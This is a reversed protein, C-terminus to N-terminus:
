IPEEEPISGSRTRWGGQDPSLVTQECPHLRLITALSAPEAGAQLKRYMPAM